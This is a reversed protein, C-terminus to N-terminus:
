LIGEQKLKHDKSRLTSISILSPRDKSEMYNLELGELQQNFYDFTYLGEEDIHKKLLEKIEYELM